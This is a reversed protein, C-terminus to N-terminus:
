KNLFSFWIFNFIDVKSLKIFFFDFIIKFWYCNSKFNKAMLSIKKLLIFDWISDFAAYYHFVLIIILIDPSSFFISWSGCIYILKFALSLNMLMIVIHVMIHRDCAFFCCLFSRFCFPIIASNLDRNPFCAWEKRRMVCM